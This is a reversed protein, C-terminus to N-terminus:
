QIVKISVFEGFKNTYKYAQIKQGLEINLKNFQQGQTKTLNVYVKDEDKVQNLPVKLNKSVLLSFKGFSGFPKAQTFLPVVVDGDELTYSKGDKGDKTKYIREKM